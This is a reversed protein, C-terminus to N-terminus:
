PRVAPGRLAQCGRALGYTALWFVGALVICVLDM